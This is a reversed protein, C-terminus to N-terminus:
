PRQASLGFDVFCFPLLLVLLLDFTLWLFFSSLFVVVFTRIFVPFLYGPPAILSVSQCLRSFLIPRSPITSSHSRHSLHLFPPAALVLLPVSPATFILCCYSTQLVAFFNSM